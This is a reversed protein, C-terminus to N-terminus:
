AVVPAAAHEGHETHCPSDRRDDKQKRVAGAELTSQPRRETGEACIQDENKGAASLQLSSAGLRTGLNPECDVIEVGDAGFDRQQLVNRRLCKLVAHDGKARAARVIADAAHVGRVAAHAFHIDRFAAEEALGVIERM